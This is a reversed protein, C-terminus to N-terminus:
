ASGRMSRLSGTGSDKTNIVKYTTAFASQWPLLAALALILCVTWYKNVRM